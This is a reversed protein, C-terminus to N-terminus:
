KPPEEGSDPEPVSARKLAADYNMKLSGLMDRLARVKVQQGGGGRARAAMQGAADALGNMSLQSAGAKTEDLVRIMGRVLTEDMKPASMQEIVSQVRHFKPPLLELFALQAQQKASLKLAM